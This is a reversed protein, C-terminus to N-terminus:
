LLYLPDILETNVTKEHIDPKPISEKVEEVRVIIENTATATFAPSELETENVSSEGSTERTSLNLSVIGPTAPVSKGIRLLTGSVVKLHSLVIM